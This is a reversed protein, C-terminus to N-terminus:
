GLVKCCVKRFAKIAIPLSEGNVILYLHSGVRTTTFEAFAIILVRRPEMGRGRVLCGMEGMVALAGKSKPNTLMLYPNSARRVTRTRTRGFKVANEGTAEM